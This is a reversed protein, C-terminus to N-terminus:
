GSGAPMLDFAVCIRDGAVASSRTAHPMYSPFLVIRGPRPEIERIGWPPSVGECPDLAGLVLPGRHVDEGPRRPAALYYVGSLWGDPHRHSKQRGEPGCVVGWLVLEARAPATEAFGASRSSIADCYDGVARRIHGIVAEIDPGDSEQLRGTQLGDITSKGRPDGALSPHRRVAEAAAAHFAEAGCYGEPPALDRVEVLEDVSIIARAAEDDGLKASALAKFYLANTCGPRVALAEDCREVLRTLSDRDSARRGWFEFLYPECPDHAAVEDAMPAAEELRDTKVLLFFLLQRADQNSPDLRLAEGIAATAEEYAGINRLVRALMLRLGVAHPVRAVGDRLVAVAEGDRGSRILLQALATWSGAREPFGKVAKEALLILQRSARADPKWNWDMAKEL